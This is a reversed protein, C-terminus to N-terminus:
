KVMDAGLRPFMAQYILDKGQRVGSFCVFDKGGRSPAAPHTAKAFALECAPNFEAPWLGSIPSERCSM